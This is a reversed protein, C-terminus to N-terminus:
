PQDSPSLDRLLHDLTSIPPEAGKTLDTPTEVFPVLGEVVYAYNLM